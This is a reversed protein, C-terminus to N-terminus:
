LMCFSRDAMRMESTTTPPATPTAAAPQPPSVPQRESQPGSGLQATEEAHVVKLEVVLEVQLVKTQPVKTQLVKTQLVKVGVQLV